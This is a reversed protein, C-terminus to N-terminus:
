PKRTFDIRMCKYEKNSKPDTCFMELTMSHDDPYTEVQRMTAPKKRIPCNYTFTWSMSKGDKALEGVGTMMGTSQSDIWTGVFKETVNDFGTLAIGRFPGMGPMEGAFEGKIYRGDLVSTITQTCASKAPEAASPDMWMQCKGEWVGVAKLMREHMKGPTGAAICAQMDEPTWGPPLPMEPQGAPPAAAPKKDKDDQAVAFSPALTILGLAVSGILLARKSHLSM